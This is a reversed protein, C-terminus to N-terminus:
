KAVTKINNIVTSTNINSGSNDTDLSVFTHCNRPLTESVYVMRNSPIPFWMNDSNTNYQPYSHMHLFHEYHIGNVEVYYAIDAGMDITSIGCLATAYM